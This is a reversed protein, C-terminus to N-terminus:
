SCLRIPLRNYCLPHHSNETVQLCAPYDGFGIWPFGPYRPRIKVGKDDPGYAVVEGVIEHGLTHPLKMAALPLKAGGGLDFYGDHIHVDSHCVGCNTVRVVVETGSPSRTAVEGHQLPNGFETIAKSHM